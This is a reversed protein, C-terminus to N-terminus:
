RAEPGLVVRRGSMGLERALPGSVLVLNGGPYSTTVSQLFNYKPNALAKFATVLIPMYEPKCGAMVAAVAVDKVTIDKGSPGVESALVMEPSFPCYGLMKEYRAPTPPIIPLGDGIHQGNMFDMVEEM